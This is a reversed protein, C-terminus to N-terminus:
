VENGDHTTKRSHNQFEDPNTFVVIGGIRVAGRMGSTLFQDDYLSSRKVVALIGDEPGFMDVTPLDAARVDRMIQSAIDSYNVLADDYAKQADELAKRPGDITGDLEEARGALLEILVAREAATHEQRAATIDGDLVTQRRRCLEAEARAIAFEQADVQEGRDAAKEMDALAAQAKSFADHNIRAAEIAQQLIENTDEVTTM